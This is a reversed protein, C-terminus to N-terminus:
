TTGIDGEQSRPVGVASEAGYGGLGRGSRSDQKRAWAQEELSPPRQCQPIFECLHLKSLGELGLQFLISCSSLGVVATCSKDGVYGGWM